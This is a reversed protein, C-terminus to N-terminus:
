ARRTPRRRIELIQHEIPRIVNERVSWVLNSVAASLHSLKTQHRELTKVQSAAGLQGVHRGDYEASPSFELASRCQARPDTTPSAVTPIQVELGQGIKYSQEL